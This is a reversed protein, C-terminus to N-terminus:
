WTRYLGERTRYRGIIALANNLRARDPSPAIRWVLATNDTDPTIACGLTGIGPADPLGHYRVLGDSEIQSTLHRRARQLSDELGSNAAIPNLLDVLLATLFTNM